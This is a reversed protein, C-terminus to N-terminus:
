QDAIARYDSWGAPLPVFKGRLWIDGPLIGTLLREDLYYNKLFGDTGVIGVVGRCVETLTGRLILDDQKGSKEKRGGYSGREVNEAGWGGGGVTVGAEVVVPDPLHRKYVDAPVANDAIGIPVYEHNINVVPKDDVYSYDSMGPDVVKVVGEAILGLANRNDASPKDDKDRAGEVQISNAIWINGTAVVTIRGQVTNANSLANDGSGLIVNGNVYIQGGPESKIGGISQTVYTDEVKVTYRDGISDANARRVHYGYIYYREFQDPDDPDVKFDYTRSDSSQRFGRVSCHNTIRIKGVGGDVYFELQVANLPNSVTKPGNPTLKFAAATSELFRTVKKNVTAADTIRSSPQNFYIGNDFVNM